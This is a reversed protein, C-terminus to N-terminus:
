GYSKLEPLDKALSHFSPSLRLWELFSASLEPARQEACHACVHAAGGATDPRFSAGCCRCIYPRANV